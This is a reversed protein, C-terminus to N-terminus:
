FALNLTRMEPGVDFTEYAENESDSYVVRYGDGVPLTVTYTYGQNDQHAVTAHAVEIEQSGKGCGMGNQRFSLHVDRGQTVGSITGQVLGSGVAAELSFDRTYSQYEGSVGIVDCAPTHRNSFVVITYESNKELLLQYGGTDDTQTATEVTLGSTDGTRQASVTAAALAIENGDQVEYVVGSLRRVDKTNMIKVVPKLSFKENAGATVISRQADFDLILETDKNEIIEFEGTLKVGSQVGSPVNLPYPEQQQGVLYNAYPHPQAFRNIGEDPLTDIMLRLQRYVGVPLEASGLSESVGNVLELLNYTAEPAAVTQWHCEDAAAPTGDVAKEGEPLCVEISDISVYVASWRGASADTLSITLSGKGGAAGIDTGSDSGCGFVTFLCIVVLLHMRYRQKGFTPM